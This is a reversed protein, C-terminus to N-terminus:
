TPPTKLPMTYKYREFKIPLTDILRIPENPLLDQPRPPRQIIMKGSPILAVEQIVLGVPSAQQGSVSNLDVHGAPSLTEGSVDYLYLADENHETVFIRQGDSSVKICRPNSPISATSVVQSDSLRIMDVYADTATYHGLFLYQGDPSIAIGRPHLSTEMPALIFDDRTRIVEIKNQDMNALYITSGDPSAIADQIAHGPFNLTTILANRVADIVYVAPEQYDVAYAKAGSPTFTISSPNGGVHISSILEMEQPHFIGVEGTESFTVYVRSDYPSVAIGTPQKGEIEINDILEMTSPNIVAIHDSDPCTVWLRNPSQVMAISHANDGVEVTEILSLDEGDIKAVTSWDPNSGHVYSNVVYVYSYATANQILSLALIGSLLLVWLSWHSRIKM